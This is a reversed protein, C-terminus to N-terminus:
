DYGISKGVRVIVRVGTNVSGRVVVSVRFRLQSMTTVIRMFDWRGTNYYVLTVLRIRESVTAFRDLGDSHM